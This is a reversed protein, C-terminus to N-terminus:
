GLSQGSDEAHRAILGQAQEELIHTVSRSRQALIAHLLTTPIAVCLGLVTTMLAISIGSAMIKPDGTGFLTIAQFTQIMGIVTGLLGMLPAIVSIVQIINIFKTISPTEQLIAEGLKLDLTEVDVGPNEEHVKLVRGLPNDDTPADANDRQRNVKRGVMFLDVLRWLALLVGVIGVWIIIAGMIGGQGDIFGSTPSGVQEGLTAKEVELSLLSGRTPDIALPVMDGPDANFLDEASSQYERSPQRALDVLARVDIDYNLYGDEGVINFAGVRVVQRQEQIGDLRNVTTIFRSIEGTRNMEQQLAEWLESMEEISALQTASGMKAALEGLPEGRGPYEASVISGEFVGRTDGAVQQLVGFLERLSGLRKDLQESLQGIRIENEEFQTELRDSRLEERRKEGEADNLMKQQNAKRALFDKERQVHERSEVVRREEVNKLLEGLTDAPVVDLGTQVVASEESAADASQVALAIFVALAILM